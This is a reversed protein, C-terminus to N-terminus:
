GLMREKLTKKRENIRLLDDNAMKGTTLFHKLNERFMKSARTMRYCDERFDTQDAASAQISKLFHDDWQELFDAVITDELIAKARAAEHIKPQLERAEADLKKTEENM